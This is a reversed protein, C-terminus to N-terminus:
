SLEFQMKNLKHYFGKDNLILQQHTGTEQVRGDQLVVIKDANRITALRHAIVISTRGVMLKDLAEQVLSESESDLSSTAEDLILISPDKLVARAIAIRQRQGGSLQIGREGVLTNFKDPFSEIFDYANAKRAAAEIELESANPRGYAINDRITGAFLIVDQPVLAIQKRLETPTLTRTDVGDITVAGNMPDYFRLILSAITTKGSGSSGVLAVTEGAAAKFSVNQLVNFDPRSPYNFSVANFEIEGKTHKETTNNKFLDINEIEGDILEFVRDTAGLARQIAAIQEPLGGLSGAVFLSLMLFTGFAEPTLTGSVKLAFLMQWLIFFVSGFVFVMVFSFFLGRFIGYKLGFERITSSIRDYKNIEYAENTFTKVNTIGTLAEGVVVNSEAIKEQYTKSFKRLKRAFFISVVTLPPIIFIFWKAIPGSTAILLVLGGIGVISQRVLEAINLMFADSIVSIDTAMRSSLEAVQNKSFFSMPMQILRKFTNQRLSKLINETVQAFLYVRGFSFAAQLLLIVMLVFGIEMLEKRVVEVPKNNEALYGLMQGSKLPFILGVGASAVLFIMGLVFKWKHKGLYSFLRLSKKFNALSLKAKPLEDTDSNVPGSGRRTQKAM